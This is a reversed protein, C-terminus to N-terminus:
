GIVDQMQDDGVVCALSAHPLQFALEARQQPLAAVRIAEVSCVVGIAM